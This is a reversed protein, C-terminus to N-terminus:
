KFSFPRTHLIKKTAGVFILQRAHTNPCAVAFLLTIHRISQLAIYVISICEGVADIVFGIDLTDCVTKAKKSLSISGM